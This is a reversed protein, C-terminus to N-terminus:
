AVDESSEDESSADSDANLVKDIRELLEQHEFPKIMYEKIGELAFLDKMYDRVTLVVVPVCGRGFRGNIQRLFAYGDMVPMLVDLLILDPMEATVSDLAEQGNYATRVRYGASELRLKVAQVLDKEDDAILITKPNNAKM